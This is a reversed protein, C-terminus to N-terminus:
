DRQGEHRGPRRQQHCAGPRDRQDEADVCDCQQPHASLVVGSEHPLHLVACGSCWVKQAVSATTPELVAGTDRFGLSILRRVATVQAKESDASVRPAALRM